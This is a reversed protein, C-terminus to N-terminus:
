APRASWRPGTGCRGTGGATSASWNSGNSPGPYRSRSRGRFRGGDPPSGRAHSRALGLSLCYPLFIFALLHAPLWKSAGMKKGQEALSADDPIIGGEAGAPRASIRPRRLGSRVRPRCIQSNARNPYPGPLPASRIADPPCGSPIRLSDSPYQCLNGARGPVLAAEEPQKSPM